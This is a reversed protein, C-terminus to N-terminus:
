RPATSLNTLHGTPSRLLGMAMIPRDSAIALEWKGRGDGIAGAVGEGSELQQATFARASRAPVTVEVGAGPTEGADDIAMVVVDVAVPSPNVLRLESVQNRNSGPNFVPLRYGRGDDGDAAAEAAVDHMATLFGDGTRVYSLVTADLTTALDLRWDGDGSGVGNPLGKGANGSELDDSNFHVAAGAPVALTVPGHRTGDDDYADITVSGAQAGNNVIRAFGQRRGDGAAPFFPIRHLTGGGPAESRNAPITSLNTLHGTRRSEILSLVDVPRDSAVNLRWKGAGDGLAGELGTGAELEAATFTRSTGAAVAAEVPTGPSLGADDIGTITLRAPERGANVVRLLSAQNANSGPNFTAVTYGDPGLPATDHMSTLFGDPTRMYAAAEIDSGSYLELHWDGTGGGSGFWLRKGVNGQEIDRSNVHVSRLTRIGGTSTDFESTPLWSWRDHGTSDISRVHV